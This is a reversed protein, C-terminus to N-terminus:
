STMEVSGVLGCVGSDCSVSNLHKWHWMIGARSSTLKLVSWHNSPEGMHCYERCGGLPVFVKIYVVLIEHM